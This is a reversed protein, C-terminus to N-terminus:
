DDKRGLLSGCTECNYDEGDYGPHEADYGYCNGRGDPGDGVHGFKREAAQPKPFHRRCFDHPDSVSDYIRPM